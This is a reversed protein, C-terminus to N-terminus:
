DIKFPKDCISQMQIKIESIYRFGCKIKLIESKMDTMPWFSRYYKSTHVRHLAGGHLNGHSHGFCTPSIHLTYYERMCKHAVTPESM